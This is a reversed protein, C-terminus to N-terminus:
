ENFKNIMYAKIIYNDKNKIAMTVLVITNPTFRQKNGEKLVDEFSNNKIAKIVVPTMGSLSTERISLKNMRNGKNNYTEYNITEGSEYFSCSYHSTVDIFHEVLVVTDSSIDDNRIAECVLDRSKTFHKNNIFRIELSKYEKMFEDINLNQSKCSISLTTCCLISLIIIRNM